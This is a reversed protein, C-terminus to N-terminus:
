IETKLGKTVKKRKKFGANSVTVKFRYGYVPALIDERDIFDVTVGITKRSRADKFTLDFPGEVLRCGRIQEFYMGIAEELTDQNFTAKPSDKAKFRELHRPKMKLSNSYEGPFLQALYDQLSIRPIM